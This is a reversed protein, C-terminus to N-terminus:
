CAEAPMDFAPPLGAAGAARHATASHRCDLRPMVCGTGSRGAEDGAEGLAELLRKRAGSQAAAAEAYDAQGARAM